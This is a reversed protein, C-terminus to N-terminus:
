EQSGREERERWAYRGVCFSLDDPGDGDESMAVQRM